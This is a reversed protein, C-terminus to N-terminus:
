VFGVEGTDYDITTQVMRIDGIDVDFRLYMRSTFKQDDRNKPVTFIRQHPEGRRECMSIIRDSAEVLGLGYATQDLSPPQDIALAADRQVQAVTLTTLGMDQTLGKIVESAEKMNEWSKGVGKILHFGDICLLDPQHERAQSVIDDVTFAGRDGSDRIILDERGFDQVESIFDEYTTLDITGKRMAKHGLVKSMMNGILADFRMEVGEITSEPSLFLVRRRGRYYAVAGFYALLWSKGANYQGIIGVLEGRQWPLSDQDFVPLGTPIGILDGRDRAQIRARVRELRAAADGDWSRTHGSFSRGIKGLGTMIARVAETPNSELGPAHRQLLRRAQLTQTRQVLLQTYTAADSVDPLLEVGYVARVDGRLPTQGKGSLEQVYAWVRAHTEVQFSDDCVGIEAAARVKDLTNLSSLVTLELQEPTMM